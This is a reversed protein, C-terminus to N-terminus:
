AELERTRAWRILRSEWMLFLRNLTYAVMTLLIIAAYMEPARLAYQMSVLYYGIGQQGALMEAIVTVVLAIALSTRLGALIFPLAAPLVVRRIAMSRPIGFTRTVQLYIPDVTAAGSVTNVVVPFFTAVAVCVIKLRDDLGFVFILAPVLATIPVPRLLEITPELALRVPRYLAIALGVSVGVISGLAYGCLMRWMSSGIVTLLAGDMVNQYLAGLVTSFAPWNASHVLGFRVSGEWLALLALVLVIGAARSTM